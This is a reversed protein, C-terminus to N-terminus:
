KLLMWAAMAVMLLDEILTVTSMPLNFGAGLCACRITRRNMLANIVGIASFWMVLLAIWNVATLQWRMLYAAGLAVEIFPYILGWPHWRAALLDYSRYADAFARVDLLKFFGFVLFFGAMFDLMFSEMPKEVGGRLSLAAAAFTIFAFVLLLPRYVSFWGRTATNTALNVPEAITSVQAMGLKYSGAGAVAQQLQALSARVDSLVVQPPDLTVLASGAFPQLASTVRKVCAACHMGELALTMDSM